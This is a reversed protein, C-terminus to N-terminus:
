AENYKELILCDDGRLPKGGFVHPQFLIFLIHIVADGARMKRRKFLKQDGSPRGSEGDAGDSLNDPSLHLIKLVSM